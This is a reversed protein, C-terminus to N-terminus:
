RYNVLGASEMGGSPFEPLSIQDLKPLVYAIGTYEEMVPIVKESISLAYKVSSLDNTNTYFTINGYKNKIHNYDTAVVLSILYTSLKPSREFVTTLMDNIIKGQQKIPM